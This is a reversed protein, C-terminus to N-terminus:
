ERGELIYENLMNVVNSTTRKKYVYVFMGVFILVIQITNAM